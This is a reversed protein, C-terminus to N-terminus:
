LNELPVSKVARSEVQDTFYAAGSKVRVRVGAIGVNSITTQRVFAGAETWVDATVSGDPAGRGLVVFIEGSASFIEVVTAAIGNNPDLEQATFQSPRQISLLLNGASDYKRATYDTGCAEHDAIWINGSGDATMSAWPMSLNTTCPNSVNYSSVLNYSSDYRLIENGQAGNVLVNLTNGSLALRQLRGRDVIPVTNLLTGTKSYVLLSPAVEDAVVLNDNADLELDAARASAVSIITDPNIHTLHVKRIKGANRELVFLSDNDLALGAPKDFSSAVVTGSQSPPWTVLLVTLVALTVSHNTWRKM